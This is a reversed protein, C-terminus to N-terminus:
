SHKPHTRILPHPVPQHPRLLNQRILKGYGPILYGRNQALYAGRNARYESPLAFWALSPHAHHAAHLNNNLYLLSMVRGAEIVATRGAPNEHARHEAYSRLLTLSTGPWVFYILYELLSMECVLMVWALVMLVAPIHLLWASVVRRDGALGTRVENVAFRTVSVWPGLLLRGAVTNNVTLLWKAAMRVDSWDKPTLFWSEPDDYPDTLREDNHHVRHLYLYRRFPVWLVLSPYILAENLHKNSTPHGHVVEHSLSGHLCVVYGGLPILLWWPLIYAYWTLGAYAAYTAAILRVTRWEVAETKSRALRELHPSM